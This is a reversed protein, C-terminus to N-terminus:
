FWEWGDVHDNRRSRWSPRHLGSGPYGDCLCAYGHEAVVFDCGWRGFSHVSSVSRWSGARILWHICDPCTSRITRRGWPVMLRTGAVMVRELVRAGVRAALRTAGMTWLSPECVTFPLRTAWLTLRSCSTASSCTFWALLAACSNCCILISAALRSCSNARWSSNSRWNAVPRRAQSFMDETRRIRSAFPTSSSLSSSKKQRERDPLWLYENQKRTKERNSLSHQQSTNRSYALAIITSYIKSTAKKSISVRWLNSLAAWSWRFRAIREWDITWCSHSILRGPNQVLILVCLLIAEDQVRDKRRKCKSRDFIM